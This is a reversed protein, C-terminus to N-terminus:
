LEAFWDFTVVGTMGTKSIRIMNGDRTGVWIPINNRPTVIVISPIAGLGHPIEVKDAGEPITGTGSSKTNYGNNVGVVGQNRPAKIQIGMTQTYSAVNNADFLYNTTGASIDFGVVQKKPEQDDFATSGVITLKDNVGQVLIGRRYTSVISDDQGNNVADVNIIKLNDTNGGFWVGSSGNRHTEIDSLRVNKLKANSNWARIGAGANHNLKTNSIALHGVYDREIRVGDEGNHEAVCAILQDGSSGQTLHFGHSRNYIATCGIFQTGGSGKNGFGLRNGASHCNIVKAYKAKVGSPNNQTEVFVGYNGSNHTFCNSVIVPEESLASTGIGIGSNGGYGTPPSNRGARDTLVGEIITNVLFDCGLATGLTNMLILDKFLARKMYLIFLAKGSVTPQGYSLGKNDILFDKFACDEYWVEPNDAASGNVSGVLGVILSHQNGEAFLYTSTKGSGILSVKSRWEVSSRFVFKGKPLQINGGGRQYVYNVLAQLIPTNDTAPITMQEDKYYKFNAEDYYNADAIVPQLPVPPFMASIIGGNQALQSTLGTLKTTYNSELNELEEGMKLEVFQDVTKDKIEDVFDRTDNAMQTWEDKTLNIAVEFERLVQEYGDAYYEAVDRAGEDIKSLGVDFYFANADASMVPAGDKKVYVYNTVRESRTIYETDFSWVARDGKVEASTIVETKSKGFVSLVDVTYSDDMLLTVDNNTFKINFRNNNKDYSMLRVDVLRPEDTLIDTSLKIDIDRQNM